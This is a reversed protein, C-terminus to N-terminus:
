EHVMVTMGEGAGNDNSVTHGVIYNKSEYRVLSLKGRREIEGRPGHVQQHSETSSDVDMVCKRTIVGIDLRARQRVYVDGWSLAYHSGSAV